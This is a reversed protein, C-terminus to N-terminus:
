CLQYSFTFQGSYLFELASTEEDSRVVVPDIRKSSPRVRWVDANSDGKVTAFKGKTKLETPLGFRM